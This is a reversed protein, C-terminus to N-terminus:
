DKGLQQLLQVVEELHKGETASVLCRLRKIIREDIFVDEGNELRQQSISCAAELAVDLSDSFLAKELLFLSEPVPGFGLIYACSEQWNEPRHDWAAELLIWDQKTMMYIWDFAEDPSSEEASL